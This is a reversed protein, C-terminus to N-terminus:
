NLLIGLLFGGAFAVTFYQYATVYKKVKSITDSSDVLKKKSKDFDEYVKDWNIMLYGQQEMCRILFIGGTFSVAMLKGVRCFMLGSCFGALSGLVLDRAKPNSSLDWNWSDVSRENMIRPTRNVFDKQFDCNEKKVSIDHNILFQLSSFDSKMELNLSSIEKSFSSCVVSNLLIHWFKYKFVTVLLM